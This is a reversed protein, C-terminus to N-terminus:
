NKGAWRVRVSGEDVPTVKWDGIREVGADVLEGLTKGGEDPLELAYFTKLAEVRVHRGFVIPLDAPLIADEASAGAFLRDMYPRVGRDQVVFAYDGVELVSSGKPAIAHKERAILAVLCEQPLALESLKRGAAPSDKSIFYEVIEANVHQLASIELTAHPEPRMSENLGLAKAVSPLSWGQTMASVLVVFFVLNFIERGHEVEFMLPFTALMIPVAGKLGTWSLLVLERFKFGFFGLTAFVSVPRAVLILVAAIALGPATMGFMTSPFVLLGLLTFMVIQGTWAVGDHFLYIGRRFVVDKNGVVIGTLYIALFGSGGLNAALGFSLLGIAGALVPYLGAADLNVRNIFRAGAKGMGVGVLAGVGMQSAFLLALSGWDPAGARIIEICGITLFIAMPDNSGSELELTSGLRPRLRLGQGKLIGFVAAADTSSIISGLLLGYLIPWDMLWAAFAGTIGATGLVGATALMGAPKWALKVSDLGTRLGGDFLIVALAVTGVAHAMKFDDFKIGGIGDSGALMGILLFLVLGPVGVKTSIKSSWIGFFLLVGVLLLVFDIIFM